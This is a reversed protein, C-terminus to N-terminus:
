QEAQKRRKREERKWKRLYAKLQVKHHCLKEKCNQCALSQNTNETFREPHLKYTIEWRALLVLSVLVLGWSFFNPIFVLPTFMMAYDWNYIRCTGCCKNKMIWTHFPCFFLICILDCVAYALSVLILIGSDYWGLLYPIGIIVNLIMWSTAVIFTRIGPMKEPKTEGTPIYNKKFQKQCGMSETRFPFFRLIMEVTFIIFVAFLVIPRETAAGFLTDTGRVKDIVYLVLAAIFLLSRFVLKVYHMSSILSLKIRRKKTM